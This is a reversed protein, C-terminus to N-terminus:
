DNLRIQKVIISESKTNREMVIEYGKGEIKFSYVPFGDWYRDFYPELEALLDDMTTISNSPHLWSIHLIGPCKFVSHFGNLESGQAYVDCNERIGGYDYGLSLVNKKLVAATMSSMAVINSISAVIRKQSNKDIEYDIPNVQSYSISISQIAILLSLMTKRM